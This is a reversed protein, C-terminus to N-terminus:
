WMAKACERRKVKILLSVRGKRGGEKGSTGSTM